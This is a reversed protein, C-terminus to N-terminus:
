LILRELDPIKQLLLRLTFFSLDDAAFDIFIKIDFVVVFTQDTWKAEIEDVLALGSYAAVAEACLTDILIQDDFLVTKDAFLSDPGLLASNEETAELDIVHNLLEDRLWFVIVDLYLPLVLFAIEDSPLKAFGHSINLHSVLYVGPVSAEDPALSRNWHDNLTDVFLGDHCDVVVFPVSPVVLVEGDAAGSKGSKAEVCVSVIDGLVLHFLDVGHLRTLVLHLCENDVPYAHGRLVLLASWIILFFLVLGLKWGWAADNGDWVFFLASDLVLIGSVLDVLLQFVEEVLELIWVWQVAVLIDAAHPAIGEVVRAVIIVWRV